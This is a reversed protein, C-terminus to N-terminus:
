CEGTAVTQKTTRREVRKYMETYVLSFSVRHSTRDVVLIVYTGIKYM